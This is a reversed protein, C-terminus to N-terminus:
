RKLLQKIPFGDYTKRPNTGGLAAYVRNAAQVASYEGREIKKERIVKYYIDLQGGFPLDITMTKVGSDWRSCFIDILRCTAESKDYIGQDMEYAHRTEHALGVVAPRKWGEIETRNPNYKILTGSGIGNSIDNNGETGPDTSNLNDSLEITHKKKSSELHTVEKSMGKEKLTNLDKQVSTAFEDNGEYESGDKNYLKGNKYQYENGDSGKIWIEMGNPDVLKVPNWACYAYPSISPYKDSMPDVSLWMTMLEHDMYRAGFYGFGTEEDRQENYKIENLPIRWGKRPDNGTSSSHFFLPSKYTTSSAM